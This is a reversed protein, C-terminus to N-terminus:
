RGVDVPQSPPGDRLLDDLRSALQRPAFRDSAAAIEAVSWWRFGGFWRREVEDPMDPPPEFRPTPVWFFREHQTVADGNLEYTVTRHWVEPGVSWGERETEELLERHLGAIVGEGPLLGGGLTIWVSRDPAVFRMMLLEQAPSLLLARVAHRERSPM